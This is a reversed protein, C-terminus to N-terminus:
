GCGEVVRSYVCEGMLNVRGPARAIYQPAAGFSQEFQQRVKDWRQGETVLREKSYLAALDGVLPIPDQTPAM